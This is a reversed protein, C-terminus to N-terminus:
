VRAEGWVRKRNTSSEETVPDANVVSPGDDHVVALDGDDGNVAALDGNVAALDGNVVALDGNVVAM